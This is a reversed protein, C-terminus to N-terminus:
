MNTSVIIAQSPARLAPRNEKGNQGYTSLTSKANADQAVNRLLNESLSRIMSILKANANLLDMLDRQQDKLDKLRNPILRTMAVLNRRMLDCSRAYDVARKQKEDLLSLADEIRGNSLLSNESEILEAMNALCIEHVDAMFQANETRLMTILHLANWDITDLDNTM